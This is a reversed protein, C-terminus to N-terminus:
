QQDVELISLNETNIIKRGVKESFPQIEIKTNTLM